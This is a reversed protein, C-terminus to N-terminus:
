PNLRHMARKGAFDKPCFLSVRTQFILTDRKKLRDHANAIDFTISHLNGTAENLAIGDCGRHVRGCTGSNAADLSDWVAVGEEAGPSDGQRDFDVVNAVANSANIPEVWADEWVGM